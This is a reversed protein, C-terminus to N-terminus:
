GGSLAQFILIEDKEGVQDSLKEEDVILEGRVFVNVHQRLHGNEEVLFDSFGPHKQELIQLAEAVTTGAITGEELDPFFRKLASTFKITPMFKLKQAVNQM